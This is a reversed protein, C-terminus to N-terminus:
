PLPMIGCKVDAHSEYANAASSQAGLHVQKRVPVIIPVAALNLM